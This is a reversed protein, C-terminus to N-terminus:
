DLHPLFSHMRLFIWTLATGVSVSTVFFSDYINEHWWEVLFFWSKNGILWPFISEDKVLLKWIEFKSYWKFLLLSYVSLESFIEVLWIKLYWLLSLFITLVNSSTFHSLFQKQQSLKISYICLSYQIKILLDKCCRFFVYLRSVFGIM